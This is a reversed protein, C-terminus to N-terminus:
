NVGIRTAALTGSVEQVLNGNLDYAKYDFTGHYANGNGSVINRETLTFMGIPNGNNDFGWGVHTLHISSGVQKWVGMCFNGEVPNLNATEAETGDSHWMDFAEYFLQGDSTYMVHWLGVISASGGGQGSSVSALTLPNGMVSLSAGGRSGCAANAATSITLLTLTAVAICFYRGLGYRYNNPITTFHKM